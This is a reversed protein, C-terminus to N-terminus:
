WCDRPDGCGAGYVREDATLERTVGPIELEHAYLIPPWRRAMLATPDPEGPYLISGSPRVIYLPVKRDRAFRITYWTGGSDSEGQHEKPAAIMVDVECVIVRNRELYDLPARYEDAGNNARKSSWWPPHLITRFGLDVAHEHAEDDAGICDGDHFEPVEPWPTEVMLRLLLGRVAYSQVSTMGKQTGTFGVKM